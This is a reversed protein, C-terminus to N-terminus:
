RLSVQESMTTRENTGGHRIRRREDGMMSWHQRGCGPWLARSRRDDVAVRTGDSPTRLRAAEGAQSCFDGGGERDGNMRPRSVWSTNWWGMRIHRPCRAGRRDTDAASPTRQPWRIQRHASSRQEPFRLDVFLRGPHRVQAPIRLPRTWRSMLQHVVVGHAAVHDVDRHGNRKCHSFKVDRRRGSNEDGPSTMVAARLRDVVCRRYGSRM